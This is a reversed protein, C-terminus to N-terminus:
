RTAPMRKMRASLPREWGVVDRCPLRYPMIPMPMAMAVVSMKWRGAPAPPHSRTIRPSAMPPPTAIAIGMGIMGYLNDGDEV